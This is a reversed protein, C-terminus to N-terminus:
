RLKFFIQAGQRSGSKFKVQGRKQARRIADLRRKAATPNAFGSVAFVPEKVQSLRTIIAQTDPHMGSSANGESPMAKMAQFKLTM